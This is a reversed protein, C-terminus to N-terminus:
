GNQNKNKTLYSDLSLYGGGTVFLISLACFLTIHSYVEEQFYFFSLTLIVFTVTVIVRTHLGLIILLGAILEILGAVLVWTEKNVPILATLNYKEVVLSAVYPNLIKEYLGLFILAGGLSIRLILPLFKEINIKLPWIKINLLDELGPTSNKSLLLVILMGLIELNGLTYFNKSLAIFYLVISMATAIFIPFGILLAFGLLIQVFSFSNEMPLAPSLLVNNIGSGILSIGISLRLMWPFLNSYEKQKNLINNYINKVFTTRKFGIYIIAIIIIVSIAILINYFNLAPLFFNIDYGSHKSFNEQDVVYKVHATTIVIPIIIYFFLALKFILNQM